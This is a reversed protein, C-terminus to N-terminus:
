VKDVKSTLPYVISQSKDTPVGVGVGAGIACNTPSIPSPKVTMIVLTAEAHAVITLLGKRSKVQMKRKAPPTTPIM